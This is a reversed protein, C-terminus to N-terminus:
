PQLLVTHLVLFKQQHCNAKVSFVPLFLTEKIGHQFLLNNWFNIFRFTPFCVCFNLKSRYNFLQSSDCLCFLTVNPLLLAVIIVFHSKAGVNVLLVRCAEPFSLQRKGQANRVRRSLVTARTLRSTRLLAETTLQTTPRHYFQNGLFFSMLIERITVVPPAHTCHM